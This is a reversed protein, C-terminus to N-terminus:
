QTISEHNNNLRTSCALVLQPFLNTVNSTVPQTPIIIIIIIIIIIMMMLMENINYINHM